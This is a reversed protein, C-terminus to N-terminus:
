KKSETEDTWWIQQASLNEQHIFIRSVEGPMPMTMSDNTATVLEVIHTTNNVSRVEYVEILSTSEKDFVAEPTGNYPYRTVIDGKILSAAQRPTIHTIAM